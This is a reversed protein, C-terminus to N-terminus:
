IGNLLPKKLPQLSDLNHWQVICKAVPYQQSETLVFLYFRGRLIYGGCFSGHTTVGRFHLQPLSVSDCGHFHPWLPCLTLTLTQWTAGTMHQTLATAPAPQCVDEWPSPLPPLWGWLPPQQRWKIDSQYYSGGLIHPKRQETKINLLYSEMKIQM